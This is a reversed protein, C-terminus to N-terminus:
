LEKPQALNSWHNFTKIKSREDIKSLMEQLKVKLKQGHEAIRLLVVSFEYVQLPDSIDYLQFNREMLFFKQQKSSYWAMSVAGESGSTVLGFLPFDVIGLSRLFYLASVTYM